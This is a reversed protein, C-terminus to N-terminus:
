DYVFVQMHCLETRLIHKGIRRGFFGSLTRNGGFSVFSFAGKGKKLMDPLLKPM